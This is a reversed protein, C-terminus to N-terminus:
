GEGKPRPDPRLQNLLEEYKAKYNPKGKPKDSYAAKLLKDNQEPSAMLTIFSGFWITNCHASLRGFKHHSPCLGMLNWPELYLEPFAKKDLIHHLNVRETVGCGPVCCVKAYMERLLAWAKRKWYTSHPDDMRIQLWTKRKRKKKM